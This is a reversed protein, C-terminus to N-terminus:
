IWRNRVFIGGFETIENLGDSEIEADDDIDFINDM